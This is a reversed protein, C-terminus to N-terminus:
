ASLSRTIIFFTLPELRSGELSWFFYRVAFIPISAVIGPELLGSPKLNPLKGFALDYNNSEFEKLAESYMIEPNKFDVSKTEIVNTNSCGTLYCVLIFLLIQFLSKM